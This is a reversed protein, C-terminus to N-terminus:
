PKDGNESLTYVHANKLKLKEGTGVISDKFFFQLDHGLRRSTRGFQGEFGYLGSQVRYLASVIVFLTSSLKHGNVTSGPQFSCNRFM